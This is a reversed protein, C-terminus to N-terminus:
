PTRYRARIPDFDLHGAMALEARARRYPLCDKVRCWRCVGPKRDNAHKALDAHLFAARQDSIPLDTTFM